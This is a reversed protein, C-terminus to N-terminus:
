CGDEEHRGKNPRQTITTRYWKNFMITSNAKTTYLYIRPTDTLQVYKYKLLIILQVSHDTEVKNHLSRYVMEVVIMHIDQYLSLHLSLEKIRFLRVVFRIVRSTINIVNKHQVNDLKTLQLFIRSLATFIQLLDSLSCKYILSICPIKCNMNYMFICLISIIGKDGSVKDEQDSMQKSNNPKLTSM